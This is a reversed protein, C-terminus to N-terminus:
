PLGCMSMMTGGLQPMLIGCRSGSPVPVRHPEVGDATSSTQPDVGLAHHAPVFEGLAPDAFRQPLVSVAICVLSRPSQWTNPVALRLHRGRAAYPWVHSQLKLIASDLCKQLDCARVQLKGATPRTPSSGVVPPNHTRAAVTRVRGGAGQGPCIFGSPRGRVWTFQLWFQLWPATGSSAAPDVFRCNGPGSVHGPSAVPNTPLACSRAM